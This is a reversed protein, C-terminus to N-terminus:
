VRTLIDSVTLMESTEGLPGDLRIEKGVKLPEYCHPFAEAFRQLSWDCSDHASVALFKIGREKLFAIAQKVDAEKLPKWPLNPSGLVQQMKLPGIKMHDDTVPYHLGGIVAYVPTQFVEEARQVLAEIGPHGCGIIIVLGKGQLNVVLAQEITYGLLLQRPLPGTTGVGPALSRPEKVVVCSVKPRLRVTSFVTKGDLPDNEKCLRVRKTLMNKMGSLHDAHPHSNFIFDAKTLDVELRQANRLLPPRAEGKRNLGLDFLIKTDDAEVLYSVGPETELGSRAAYWDILPLIRLRRVESLEVRKGNDKFHGPRDYHRNAIFRGILYTLIFRTVNQVIISTIVRRFVQWFTPKPRTKKSKAM